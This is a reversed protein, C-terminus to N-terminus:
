PKKTKEGTYRDTVNEAFSDRYGPAWVLPFPTGTRKFSAAYIASQVSDKKARAADGTFWARDLGKPDHECAGTFHWGGDWIEVWTHNGDKAAWKPTGALRAPISVSRCGDVLLISLGTCSAIGSSITESPSQDPRKRATSYRVKLKSFLGANIAQAAEAINKCDKVLPLCREMMERRWPERKETVNAYPLVDNLFLEERVSKGWPMKSRAEYALRTNELLFAAKLTTLDGAPMNAILFAIGPRQEKPAERLAKELEKRNDKSQALAEEVDGKWWRAEGAQLSPGSALAFLVFAPLVFISRRIM